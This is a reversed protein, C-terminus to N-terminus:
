RYCQKKIILLLILSKTLFILKPYFFLKSAGKLPLFHIFLNLSLILLLLHNSIRILIKRLCKWSFFILMYFPIFLIMHWYFYFIKNNIKAKFLQSKILIYQKQKFLIIFCAVQIRIVLFIFRLSFQM